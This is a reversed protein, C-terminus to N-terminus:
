KEKTPNKQPIPFPHVKPGGSDDPDTEPETSRAPKRIRKRSESPTPVPVRSDAQLPKPEPLGQVPMLENMSGGLVTLLAELLATKVQAPRDDLIRSLQASTIDYGVADLRRKLETATTIRNEAMRIRLRWGLAICSEERM